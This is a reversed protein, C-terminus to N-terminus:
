RSTEVRVPVRVRSREWEIVLWAAEPAETEFRVTLDEILSGPDEVAATVRGVDHSRVWEDITAGDRDALRNVVVAWEQPEPVVYLSYWGPELAVDGVRIPRDARLVTAENAGARWPTGFPVLEGMITRGRAAPRSYCLKIRAGGLTTEVSDPPSLREALAEPPDEFPCAFLGERGVAARSLRQIPPDLDPRVSTLLWMRPGSESGADGIFQPDQDVVEFGAEVLDGAALDIHLVHGETQAERTSGPDRPPNDLIVLRGGPRLASRIAALMARYETMEHYSNVILAGDLSGYPLRPDHPEGLIVDVNRAGLRDLEARLRGVASRSIDVAYVRGDVGVARRLHHTFYGGGAGIDAIRSGPAAGLAELVDPVRQWDDRQPRDQSAGAGPTLLLVFMTALCVLRPASIMM